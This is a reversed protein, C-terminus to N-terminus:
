SSSEEDTKDQEQPSHKDVSTRIKRSVGDIEVHFNILGEEGKVASKGKFKVEGVPTEENNDQEKREM